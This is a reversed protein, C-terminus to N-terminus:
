HGHRVLIFLAYNGSYNTGTFGTPLVGPHAQLFDWSLENTQGWHARLLEPFMEADDSFCMNLSLISPVASLGLFCLPLM